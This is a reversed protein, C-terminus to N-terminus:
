ESDSEESAAPATDPTEANSLVITILDGSTIETGPAPETTIVQDAELELHPAYVVDLIMLLGTEQELLRTDDLVTPLRPPPFCEPPFRWLSLTPTSHPLARCLNNPSFKEPPRRRTWM